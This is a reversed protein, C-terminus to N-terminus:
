GVSGPRFDRWVHKVFLLDAGSQNKRLRKLM